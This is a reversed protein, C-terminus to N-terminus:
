VQKITQGKLPESKITFAVMLSMCSIIAGCFFVIQYNSVWLLGLLFPLFVAAIHNITFSVSSSSAIEDSRITKKFYTALAITFSFLISDLIYLGGALYHNEVFAYSTFVVALAVYEIMLARKEGIRDIFRGISAVTLTTALSSIMFLVAMMTISYHFKQVMLLGAFAVFIQRRAGGLFTLLYYVSYEKRLIINNKQEVKHEKFHVFSLLYVALAACTLGCFFFITKASADFFQIALIIAIFTALGIFSSAERIMGMSQGFSETELVQTSLSRNVAELYHFGISMLVTTFYFGYISPLYGTIAVGIGLLCLSLIAVRQESMLMLLFMVTFSLLGPIERISQLVGINAGTMGVTDVAFNNMVVRWGTNAIVSAIGIIILMSIPSRSFLHHRWANM